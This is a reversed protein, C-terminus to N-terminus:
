NQSTNAFSSESEQFQRKKKAKKHRGCANISEKIKPWWEGFTTDNLDFRKMIAERFVKMKEAPLPVRSTQPLTKEPVNTLLCNELEDDTFIIRSICLAYKKPDKANIEMLDKGDYVLTKLSETSNNFHARRKLEDIEKQQRNVEESIKNFTSQVIQAFSKFVEFSIAGGNQDALTPALLMFNNLLDIGFNQEIIGNSSNNPSSPYYNSEQSLYNYDQSLEQDEVLLDPESKIQKILTNNESNNKSDTDLRMCKSPREVNENKRGDIISSNDSPINMKSKLHSVAKEISNLSELRNRRHRNNRAEM